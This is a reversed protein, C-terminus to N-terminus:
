VWGELEPPVPPPECGFAEAVIQAKHHLEAKRDLALITQRLSELGERMEPLLHPFEPLPNHLYDTM